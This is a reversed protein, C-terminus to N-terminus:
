CGPALAVRVKGGHMGSGVESKRITTAPQHSNQRDIPDYGQWKCRVTRDQKLDSQSGVTLRAGAVCLAWEDQMSSPM